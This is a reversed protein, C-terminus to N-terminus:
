SKAFSPPAPNDAIVEIEALLLATGTEFAAPFASAEARDWPPVGGYPGTWRALLPNADASAALRSVEAQAAQHAAAAEPAPSAMNACGTLAAALLCAVFRSNM